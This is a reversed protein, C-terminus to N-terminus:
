LTGNEKILTYIYHDYADGKVPPNPLTYLLLMIYNISNCYISKLVFGNIGMYPDLSPTYGKLPYM